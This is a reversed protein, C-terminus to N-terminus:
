FPNDILFSQASVYNLQCLTLGIYISHIHPFSQTYALIPIHLLMLDQYDMVPLSYKIDLVYFLPHYECGDALHIQM